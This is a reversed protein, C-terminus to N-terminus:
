YEILLKSKKIFSCVEKNIYENIHENQKDLVKLLGKKTPKNINVFLNKIPFFSIDEKMRQIADYIDKEDVKKKLELLQSIVSIESWITYLYGVKSNFFDNLLKIERKNNGEVQLISKLREFTKYDNITFFYNDTIEIFKDDILLTVDIKITSKQQLAEQFTYGNNINSKM